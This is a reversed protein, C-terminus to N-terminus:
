TEAKQLQSSHVNLDGPLIRDEVAPDLLYYGPHPAMGGVALFQLSFYGYSSQLNLGRLSQALSPRRLM